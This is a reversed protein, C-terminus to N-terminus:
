KTVAGGMPEEEGTKATVKPRTVTDPALATHDAPGGTRGSGLMTAVWRSDDHSELAIKVITTLPVSLVAGIPGLIWGWFILSLFVVLASLGGIGGAMLRPELIAIVANVCTYGLITLLAHGIGLQILALLVAPIAAFVPGVYPVFNLLFALLGWIMAYDVGIIVLCLWIALGTVASTFTKILLYRHATKGFKQFAALTKEPNRVAARLKRPFSSAEILVFGVIFLVVLGNGLLMVLGSVVSETLTMARSPAFYDLLMRASVHINKSKLWDFLAATGTDMRAQYGPLAEVFANVSMGVATALGLGITLLIVAILLVAPLNPVGKRRLWGLFPLCLVAIFVALLFPVVLERAARMGAIIVVLAAGTLLIPMTKSLRGKDEMAM